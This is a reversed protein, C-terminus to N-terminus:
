SRGAAAGADRAVPWADSSFRRLSPAGAIASLSRLATSSRPRLAVVGCSGCDTVILTPTVHM